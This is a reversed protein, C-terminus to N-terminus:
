RVEIMRCEALPAEVGDGVLLLKAGICRTPGRDPSIHDTEIGLAFVGDADHSGPYVLPLRCAVEEGDTRTLMAPRYLQDILVVVPALAVKRLSEWAFWWYEGAVFAELVSAFRDDADRLGDFEQGDIFGWVEPSSADAADVHEIAGEPRSDRLAEIALHRLRLHEPPPNPCFRPTGAVIRQREAVFLDLLEAKADLWAPEDGDIANLQAAADDIRGAFAYLDALVRRSAHTPPNASEAFAIADALHGEALAEHPTM